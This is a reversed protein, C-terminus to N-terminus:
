TTERNEDKFTSPTRHCLAASGAADMVRQSSYHSNELYHSANQVVEVKDKPLPQAV